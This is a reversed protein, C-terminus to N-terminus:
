LETANPLGRIVKQGLFASHKYIIALKPTIRTKFTDHQPITQISCLHIERVSATMHIFKIFSTKNPM